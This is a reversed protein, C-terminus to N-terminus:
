KKEPLRGKALLSDLEWFKNPLLAIAFAAGAAAFVSADLASKITTTFTMSLAFSLLLFGSLLGAWRTQLGLLLLLGLITEAGTASVALAPLFADPCWPCLIHTYSLFSDWNGWAIRDAPFVSNWWGIRDFVASLFGAGVALRLFLKTLNQQLTIQM